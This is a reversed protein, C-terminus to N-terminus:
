PGACAPGNSKRRAGGWPHAVHVVVLQQAVAAVDQEVLDADLPLLAQEARVRQHDAGAAEARRRREIEGRGADAPDQEGVAVRDVEGVQLPLDQVACRGTPM